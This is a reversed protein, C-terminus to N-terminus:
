RPPKPTTFKFLDALREVTNTGRILDLPDIDDENDRPAPPNHPPAAAARELRAITAGYRGIVTSIRAIAESTLGEAKLSALVEARAATFRPDSSIM